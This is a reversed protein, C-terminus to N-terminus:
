YIYLGLKQNEMMTAILQEQLSELQDEFIKKEEASWSALKDDEALDVSNSLVVNKEQLSDSAEVRSYSFSGNSSHSDNKKIKRRLM